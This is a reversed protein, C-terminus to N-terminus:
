SESRVGSLATYPHTRGRLPTLYLDVQRVRDVTTRGSLVPISYSVLLHCAIVKVKPFCCKQTTHPVSLRRVVDTERRKTVLSRLHGM